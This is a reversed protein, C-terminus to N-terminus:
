DDKWAGLMEENISDVSSQDLGRNEIEMDEIMEKRNIMDIFEDNRLLAINENINQSIDDVQSRLDQDDSVFVLDNKILREIVNM